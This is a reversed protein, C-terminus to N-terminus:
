GPQAPRSGRGTGPGAPVQFRRGASPDHAAPTGPSYAGLPPSARQSPNAACGKHIRPQPEAGPAGARHLRRRALNFAVCSALPRAAMAMLIVLIPEAALCRESRARWLGMVSPPSCAGGWSALLRRYPGGHTGLELMDHGHLDAQEPVNVEDILTSSAVPPSLAFALRTSPGVRQGVRPNRQSDM